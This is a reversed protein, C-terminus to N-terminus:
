PLWPVTVRYSQSTPSADNTQWNIPGVVYGGVDTWVNTTLNTSSEVQYTIGALANWEVTAIASSVSSTINTIRVATAPAPQYLDVVYDEVEGDPPVPIGINDPPLGGASSIRFRAYTTGLASPQPVAFSLNTLGPGLPVPGGFLREGPEAWIGDANFDIWGDLVGGSVGAVVGIVANSGSVIKGAFTVGDEDDGQVDTDDGDADPSPQGDPESDIAAGLVVGPTITHHAGLPLLTQPLYLADGADLGGPEINEIDVPHDEVEGDPAQGSYSAVGASSYRFRSVTSVNPAASVPVAFLLTNVGPDLARGNFV